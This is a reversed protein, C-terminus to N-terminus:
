LDSLFTFYILFTRPALTVERAWGVLIFFLPHNSTVVSVIKLPMWFCSHASDSFSHLAFTKIKDSGRRIRRGGWGIVRKKRSKKRELFIKNLKLLVNVPDLL